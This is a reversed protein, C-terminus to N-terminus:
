INTTSFIVSTRGKKRGNGVEMRNGGWCLGEGGWKRYRHAICMLEKTLRKRGKGVKGKLNMM